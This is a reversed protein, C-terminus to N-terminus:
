RLKSTKYGGLEWATPPLHHSPMILMRIPRGTDECDIDPFALEGFIQGPKEPKEPMRLDVPGCDFRLVVACLNAGNPLIQCFVLEREGWKEFSRNVTTRDEETRVIEVMAASGAPAPKIWYIKEVDETARSSLHNTPFALSLLLCGHHAGAKPIADRRWKLTARDSRDPREAIQAWRCIGSQHFSFKHVKGMNRQLLYVDERRSWLKWASSQPGEPEGIAFRFVMDSERSGYGFGLTIKLMFCNLGFHLGMVKLM